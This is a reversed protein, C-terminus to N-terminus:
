LKGENSETDIIEHEQSLNRKLLLRVIAEAFPKSAEPSNATVINGSTEVDRSTLIVREEKFISKTEKDEWVTAKTNALTGARALIIPAFCIAGIVKKKNFALNIISHLYKNNWYDRAGGGGIFVLADFNLPNISDLFVDPKIKMELMGKAMTTDSSAITSTAGLKEFMNKSIKLEEDRFNRHSIVFLIKKGNLPKLTSDIDSLPDIIPNSLALFFSLVIIVM